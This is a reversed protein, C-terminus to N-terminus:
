VRCGQGKWSKLTQFGTKGNLKQFNELVAQISTTWDKPMGNTFQGLTMHTYYQQCCWLETSKWSQTSYSELEIWFVEVYDVLHQVLKPLGSMSRMMLCRVIHKWSLHVQRGSKVTITPENYPKGPEPKYVVCDKQHENHFWLQWM